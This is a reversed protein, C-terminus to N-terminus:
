ANALVAKDVEDLSGPGLDIMKDLVDDVTLHCARYARVLEPCQALVLDIDAGCSQGLLIKHSLECQMGLVGMSQLHAIILDAKYTEVFFCVVDCGDIDEVAVRDMDGMDLVDCLMQEIRPALEPSCPLM